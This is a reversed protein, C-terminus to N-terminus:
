LTMMKKKEENGTMWLSVSGLLPEFEALFDSIDLDCGKRIEMFIWSRRSSVWEMLDSKILELQNLVDILADDSDETRSSHNLYCEAHEVAHELDSLRLM